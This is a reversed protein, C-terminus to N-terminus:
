GINGLRSQIMLFQQCSCKEWTTLHYAERVMTKDCHRVFSKILNGIDVNTKSAQVLGYLLYQEIVKNTQQKKITLITNAGGPSAHMGAANCCNLAKHLTMNDEPIFTPADRETQVAYIWM